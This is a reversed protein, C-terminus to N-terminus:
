QSQPAWRCESRLIFVDCMPAKALSLITEVAVCSFAFNVRQKTYGKEFKAETLPSLLSQRHIGFSNASGTANGERRVCRFPKAGFAQHLHGHSSLWSALGAMIRVRAPARRM